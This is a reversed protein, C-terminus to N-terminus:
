VLSFIILTGLRIFLLLFTCYGDSRTKKIRNVKKFVKFNDAFVITLNVILETVKISICKCFFIM